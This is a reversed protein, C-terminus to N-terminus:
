ENAIALTAVVGCHDSADTLLGSDLRVKDTIATRCDLVEVEAAGGLFFIHDCRQAACGRHIGRTNLENSAGWTHGPGAAGRAEDWADRFGASLIQLYNAPAAEPGANFDGAALVAAAGGAAARDALEKLEEIQRARVAVAAGSTPDLGASLHVNIVAVRGVGPVEVAVSLMAKTALIREALTAARHPRLSAGSVPFASLVALGNHFRLFGGSKVRAAHPHTSCLGAALERFHDDEYCEQICLVDFRESSLAGVLRRARGEVLGPNEFVTWPGVRWRLLGANFTLVRLAM